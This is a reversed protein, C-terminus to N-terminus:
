SCPSRGPPMAWPWTPGASSIKCAPWSSPTASPMATLSRQRETWGSAWSRGCRGVTRRRRRPTSTRLSRASSPAGKEIQAQRKESVRRAARAQVLGVTTGIIGGILLTVIISAAVVSGRHRRLFKGLRYATSPPSAEVAEDALYRQVDRALGSVTEYRRSRDKELCKMTIWDLEGRVLKALRAPELRRRAALSSRSGDEGLRASPRPPEEERIIRLVEDLATANLREKRFPTSGALLEYFVAGLSYIDGRTDIDTANFSAQEPSMYALTGVIQGDQTFTTRESPEPGTAKAVGFDIVRPMPEGDRNAVLINSPKLDRHIIGKQHAHHVAGCVALFLGLRERPPLDHDDCYATIPVGEVLEMVFYPRGCDTAGADFVKAINPHNMLALAQREAEFRAIVRRSDMGPKIIKLAVKRRVPRLQEAMWVVGMGGEGIERVLEYPGITAGPKEVRTLEVAAASREPLDLLDGSRADALLLSEVAARLTPSDACAQDLYADREASSALESAHAFISEEPLSREAM